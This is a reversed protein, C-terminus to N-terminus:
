TTLRFPNPLTFNLTISTIDYDGCLKIFDGILIIETSLYNGVYSRMIDFDTFAGIEGNKIKRFNISNTLSFTKNENTDKNDIFTLIIYSQNQSLIDFIKHGLEGTPEKSFELLYKNLTENAEKITNEQIGDYFKLFGNYKKKAYKMFLLYGIVILLVIGIAIEMTQQKKLSVALERIGAVGNRRYM